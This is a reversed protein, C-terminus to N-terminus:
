LLGFGQGDMLCMVMTNELGEETMLTDSVPLNLVCSCTNAHPLHDAADHDFNISPKAIFGEAPEQRSGTVFQLLDELTLPPFGEAGVSGEPFSFFRM